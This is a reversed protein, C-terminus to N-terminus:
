RRYLSCFHLVSLALSFTSIYVFGRYLYPALHFLLALGLCAALKDPPEQKAARTIITHSMTPRRHNMFGTISSKASAKKPDKIHVASVFSLASTPGANVPARM